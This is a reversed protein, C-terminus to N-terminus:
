VRERCSARGIKGANNVLVDLGGFREDICRFFTRVDDIRSIDAVEGSLRGAAIPAMEELARRVNERSRSCIAVSAGERLLREAIARGIGRTAGTVAAVKGSLSAEM